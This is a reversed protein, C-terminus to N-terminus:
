QLPLPKGNERNEYLIHVNMAMIKKNCQTLLKFTVM